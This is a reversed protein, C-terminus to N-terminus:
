ERLLFSWCTEEQSRDDTMNNWSRSSQMNEAYSDNLEVLENFQFLEHVQFTWQIQLAQLCCFAWFNCSHAITDSHKQIDSCDTKISKLGKNWRSDDNSVSADESNM